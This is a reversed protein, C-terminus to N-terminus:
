AKLSPWTMGPEVPIRQAHFPDANIRHSGHARGDGKSGERFFDFSM